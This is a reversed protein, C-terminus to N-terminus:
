IVRPDNTDPESTIINKDVRVLVGVGMERKKETWELLFGIRRKGRNRFRVEQLCCILVGARDIEKAITYMKAGEGKEKGSRINICGLNWNKFNRMNLCSNSRVTVRNHGDEEDEQYFSRKQLAVCATSINM